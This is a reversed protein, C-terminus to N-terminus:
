NIFLDSNLTEEVHKDGSATSECYKSVSETYILIWYQLKNCSKNAKKVQSM